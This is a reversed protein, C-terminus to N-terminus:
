RPGSESAMPAKPWFYTSQLTDGTGTQTGAGPFIDAQRVLPLITRSIM